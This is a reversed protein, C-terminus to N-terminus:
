ISFFFSNRVLWTRFQVSTNTTAIVGCRRARHYSISIRERDKAKRLSHLSLLVWMWYGSTEYKVGVAQCPLACPSLSRLSPGRREDRSVPTHPAVQMWLCVRRLFLSYRFLQCSERSELGKRLFRIIAASISHLHTIFAPFRSTARHDYLTPPKGKHWM